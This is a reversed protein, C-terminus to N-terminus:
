WLMIKISSKKIKLNKHTKQIPRNKYSTNKGLQAYNIINNSCYESLPFRKSEVHEM